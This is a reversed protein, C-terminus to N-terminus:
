LSCAVTFRYPLSFLKHSTRWTSRPRLTTGPRRVNFSLFV